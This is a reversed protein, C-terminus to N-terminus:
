SWEVAYLVYEGDLGSMAVPARADLTLETTSAVLERLRSSVLVEGGAAQSAIRSAMLVQADYSDANHDSGEPMPEGTHLGIRVTIPRVASDSRLAFARQLDVACRLAAHADQFIVVLADEEADVERGAYGAVIDRVLRDQEALLEVRHDDRFRGDLESSEINAALVTGHERRSALIRQRARRLVDIAGRVHEAQPDYVRAAAPLFSRAEIDLSSSVVDMPQGQDSHPGSSGRVSYQM